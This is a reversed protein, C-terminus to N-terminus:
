SWVLVLGPGPDPGPQRCLPEIHLLQHLQEVYPGYESPDSRNFSIELVQPQVVVGPNQLLDTYKPSDPDLTLLVSGLTFCFMISLVSYFVLYFLLIHGWSTKTRGLVTGNRPNYIFSCFTEPEPSKDQVQNPTPTSEHTQVKTQVKPQVKTQAKNRAPKPQNQTKPKQNLDPNPVQNHDQDPSLKTENQNQDQNQGSM